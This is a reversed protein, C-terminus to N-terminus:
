GRPGLAEHVGVGGEDHHGRGEDRLPALLGEHCIGLIAGNTRFISVSHPVELIEGVLDDGEAEGLAEAVEFLSMAGEATRQKRVRPWSGGGNSPWSGGRSPWSGGREISPTGDTFSGTDLSAFSSERSLTSHISHSSKSDDDRDDAGDDARSDLAFLDFVAPVERKKLRAPLTASRRRQPSSM